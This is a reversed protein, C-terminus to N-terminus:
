FGWYKKSFIISDLEPQSSPIIDDDSDSEDVLLESSSKNAQVDDTDATEEDDDRKEPSDFRQSWSWYTRLMYHGREGYKKMDYKCLSCVFDDFKWCYCGTCHTCDVNQADGCGCLPHRLYDGDEDKISLDKINKCGSCTQQNMYVKEFSRDLSSEESESMKECRDPETINLQKSCM